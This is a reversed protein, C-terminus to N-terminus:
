GNLKNRLKEYKRNIRKKYKSDINSRNTRDIKFDLVKIMLQKDEETIM